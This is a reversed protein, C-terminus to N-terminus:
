SNILECMCVRGSVCRIEREGTRTVLPTKWKAFFGPFKPPFRGVTFFTNWKVCTGNMGLSGRWTNTILLRVDSDEWRELNKSSGSTDAVNEPQNCSGSSHRAMPVFWFRTNWKCGLRFKRFKKTFPFRGITGTTESRRNRKPTEVPLAITTHTMLLQYM